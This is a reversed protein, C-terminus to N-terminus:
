ENVHAPHEVVCANMGDKTQDSVLHIIFMLRPPHNTLTDKITGAKPGISFMLMPPDVAIADFFSFTAANPGDPGIEVGPQRPTSRGPRWDTQVPGGM